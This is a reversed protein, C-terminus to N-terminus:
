RSLIQQFPLIYKFSPEILRVRCNYDGYDHAQINSIQLVSTYIDGGSQNITTNIEYHGDAGTTLHATNSGFFWQFEPRPYAQVRCMVEATERLDYAVKHPTNFM